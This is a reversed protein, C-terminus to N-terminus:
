VAKLIDSFKELVFDAKTIIKDKDVGPKAIYGYKAWATKFGYNHAGLVDRLPHDGVMIIKSPDFEKKTRELLMALVRRFAEQTPKKFEDERNSGVVFDEFFPELGTDCLRDFVKIRPADSLVALQIKKDRLAILTEHVGDYPKLFERQRRRYATKGLQAFREIQVQDKIGVYEAVHWFLLADEWGHNRFIEDIISLAEEKTAPLGREVMKEIAAEVCQKKMTYFDVLTNDADFVIAQIQM